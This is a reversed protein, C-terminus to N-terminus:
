AVVGVAALEMMEKRIRNLEEKGQKTLEYEKGRKVVMGASMLISLYKSVTSLALGTAKAIEDFRTYGKEIAMLIRIRPSLDPSKLLDGM